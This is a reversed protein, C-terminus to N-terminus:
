LYIVRLAKGCTPCLIKEGIKEKLGQHARRVHRTVGRRTALAKNCIPCKHHTREMHTYNVHDNLETLRRFGKECMTCKYKHVDRVAHVRSNRLHKEYSDRSAFRKGCAACEAAARAGHIRAHAAGRDARVMAGCVACKQRPLPPLHTQQHKNLTNKFAFTKGCTKCKFGERHFKLIHKYRLYRNEFYKNCENCLYGFPTKVEPKKIRRSKLAPNTQVARRKVKQWVRSRVNYTGHEVKLHKLVDLMNSTMHECFNCKYKTYHDKKHETLWWYKIYVQCIDCQIYRPKQVHLELNHKELENCDKFSEICSECKDTANVYSDLLKMSERSELMEQESMEITSYNVDEDSSDVDESLLKKRKRILREKKGTEKVTKTNKLLPKIEIIPRTESDNKTDTISNLNEITDLIPLELSTEDNADLETKIGDIDPGCDIFNYHINDSSIIIHNYTNQHYNSLKSLSSHQKIDFRGDTIDSLQKQAMCAQNRFKCLRWILAKCEWCIFLHTAEKQFMTKYAESDYSLLFFLNNVGDNVRCLQTLKRDVSLCTCCISRLVAEPNDDM